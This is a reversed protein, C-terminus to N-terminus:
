DECATRLDARAESLPPAIQPEGSHLLPLLSKLSGSAQNEFVARSEALELYIAAKYIRENRATNAFAKGKHAQLVDKTRSHLVEVQAPSSAPLGALACVDALSGGSDRSCGAILALGLM